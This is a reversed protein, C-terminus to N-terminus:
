VLECDRNRRWRGDGKGGARPAHRLVRRAGDGDRPLRESGQPAPIGRPRHLSLGRRGNRGSAAGADHLFHFLRLGGGRDATQGVHGKRRWVARFPGADDAKANVQTSTFVAVNLEVALNKLATTMFLLLEDNRLATGKFENVLSPSIFIYDYFVVDIENIICQDRVVANILEITPEPM